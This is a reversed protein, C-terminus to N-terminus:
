EMVQKGYLRKGRNNLAEFKVWEDPSPDAPAILWCGNIVPVTHVAKNRTHGVVKTARRDWTWGGAVPLPAPPQDAATAAPEDATADAAPSPETDTQAAGAADSPDAENDPQEWDASFGFPEFFSLPMALEVEPGATGEGGEGEAEPLAGEPWLALHLRRAPPDGDEYNVATLTGGPAAEAVYWKHDRGGTRATVAAVLETALQDPPTDKPVFLNYFQDVLGGGSSRSDVWKAKM